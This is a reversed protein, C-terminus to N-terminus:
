IDDDVEPLSVVNERGLRFVDIAGEEKLDNVVKSTKSPHWDCAEALEQQKMRGGHEELVVRVQEENSMLESPVATQGESEDGNDMETQQDDGRRRLAVVGGTGVLGLVVLGAVAMVLPSEDSSRRQGDDGSTGDAGGGTSQDGDDARLVLTPEESTFETEGEWVARTTGNEDPTPRLSDAEFGTPWTVILTTKPSVYFGHIADGARITSDNAVTFNTWRFEYSVIGLNESGPATEERASVSLNSLAMARGTANEGAAVSTGIRDGFRRTYQDPNSRVRDKLAAFAQTTNEDDLRYRYEVRWVADGDSQIDVELLVDDTELPGAATAPQLAAGASLALLSALLVVRWRGPRRIM